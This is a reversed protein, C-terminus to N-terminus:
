DRLLLSVAQAISIPLDATPLPHFLAPVAANTVYMQPGHTPAIKRFPRPIEVRDKVALPQDDIHAVVGTAVNVAPQQALEQALGPKVPLRWHPVGCPVHLIGESTM